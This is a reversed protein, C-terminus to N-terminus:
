KVRYLRPRGGCPPPTGDPPEHGDGGVDEEDEEDTFLLGQQNERAFVALVAASPIVVSTAVGGFRLSGRLTKGDFVFDPCAEPGFDLVVRGDQLRESPIGSVGHRRADVLVHPTWGNDAIWDLVARLFYPRRPKV